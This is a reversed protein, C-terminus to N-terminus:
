IELMPVNEPGQPLRFKTFDCICTNSTGSHPVYHVYSTVMDGELEM